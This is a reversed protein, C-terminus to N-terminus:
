GQLARYVRESLRELLTADVAASVAYALPGDRWYISRTLLEGQRQESRQFATGGQRGAPSGDVAIYLTLRQGEANEYMLQARALSAGAGAPVAEGAPLLRGGMLRFGEAQLDPARLPQGLRKSLWQLLHDQDAAAVEVPHRREVQYVAHAIAADRVFAPASRAQLLSGNPRGLLWGLGTGAAGSVAVTGILLWMAAQRQAWWPLPAQPPPAPPSASLGRLPALVADPLPEDLCEAQLGQLAQRQAQWAQVRAALEPWEDLRRRLAQAEAPTLEGDVLAHLSTEDPPSPPAPARADDGPEHPASM